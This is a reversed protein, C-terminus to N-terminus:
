WSETSIDKYSQHRQSAILQSNLFAKTQLALVTNIKNKKEQTLNGGFATQVRSLNVFIQLNLHVLLLVIRFTNASSASSASQEEKSTSCKIINFEAKGKSPCPGIRLSSVSEKCGIYNSECHIIRLHNNLSEFQYANNM